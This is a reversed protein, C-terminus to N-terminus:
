KGLGEADPVGESHVDPAGDDRPPPKELVRGEDTRSDVEGAGAEDRREIRLLVQHVTAILVIWALGFVWGFVVDTLWHHGLFVRSLGMAVSWCVAAVVSAIRIWLRVSLWVALYAFALSIVTSNLTHGSPFSPAYEYPPVAEALPPRKRGVIAKGVATFVLSGASAVLVLVLITRRRWYWYLLALLVLGMVVMPGTDGLNTFATVWYESAPTRARIAWELVPQDLGSIGDSEAVAEYVATSVTLLGAFVAAGVAGIILMAANPGVRDHVSKLLRAPPNETTAM